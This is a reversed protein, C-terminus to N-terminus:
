SYLKIVRELTKIDEQDKPRNFAQKQQLLMKPTYVYIGNVMTLESHHTYYEVRVDIDLKPLSIMFTGGLYRDQMQKYIPVLQLKACLLLFVRENEVGIDIDQTHDRLGHMVMAAGSGLWYESSRIGTEVQFAILRDKILQATVQKWLFIGYNNTPCDHSQGVLLTDSYKNPSASLLRHSVRSIV